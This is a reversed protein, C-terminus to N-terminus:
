AGEKYRHVGYQSRGYRAYHEGDANTGTTGRAASLANPGPARSEVLTSGAHSARAQIDALIRQRM